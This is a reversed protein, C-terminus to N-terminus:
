SFNEGLQLKVSRVISSIADENNIPFGLVTKDTQVVIRDKLDRLVLSRTPDTNVILCNEVHEALINPGILVNNASDKINREFLHRWCGVDSWGMSSPLICVQAARELLGLVVSINELAGYISSICEEEYPTDLADWCEGLSTMIEPLNEDLADTLADINAFYMGSNWMFDGSDIFLQAHQEDPKETFAKVSFIGEENEEQEFQIYGYDTIPSHATIGVMILCNSNETKKLAKAVTRDFEAEDEILHDAQTIFVNALPDRKKIKLAAYAVPAATNRRLPEKIINSIPLDPLQMKATAVFSKNTVVFINEPSFSRLMRNYTGQLLTEGTGLLDLFQKPKKETSLPWLRTGIGGALIVCYPTRM